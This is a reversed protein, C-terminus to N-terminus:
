WGGTCETAKAANSKGRTEGSANSAICYTTGSQSDKSVLLVGGKGAQRITIEGAIPSAAKNWTLTPEAGEATTPTFGVYTHPKQKSWYSQAAAIATTLDNQVAPVAQPATSGSGGGAFLSGVILLVGLGLLVLSVPVLTRRAGPTELREKLAAMGPLMNTISRSKDSIGPIV